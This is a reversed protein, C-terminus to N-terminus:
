LVEQGHRTLYRLACNIRTLCTLVMASALIKGPPIPLGVNELM